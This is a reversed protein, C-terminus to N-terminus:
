MVTIPSCLHSEIESILAFIELYLSLSAYSVGWGDEDDMMALLLGALVSMLLRWAVVMIVGCVM